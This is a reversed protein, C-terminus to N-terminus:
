ITALLSGYKDAALVYLCGGRSRAGGGLGGLGRGGDRRRKM